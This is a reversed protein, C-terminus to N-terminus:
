RVPEAHHDLSSAWLDRHALMHEKLLRPPRSLPRPQHVLVWEFPLPFGDIPLLSLRGSAVYEAVADVSVITLGMGSLVAQVKVEQNTQEWVVNLAVGSSEALAQVM